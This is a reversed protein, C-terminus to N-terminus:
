ISMYHSIYAKPNKPAKFRFIGYLHHIKEGNSNCFNNRNAGILHVTM